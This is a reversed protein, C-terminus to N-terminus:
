VGRAAVGRPARGAASRAPRVPAYDFTRSRRLRSRNEEARM